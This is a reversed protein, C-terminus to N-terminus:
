AAHTATRMLDDADAVARTLDGGNHSRMLGVANTMARTLDCENTVSRTLDGATAVTRTLDFPFISHQAGCCKPWTRSIVFPPWLGRSHCKGSSGEIYKLAVGGHRVSM